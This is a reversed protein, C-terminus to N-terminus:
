LIGLVSRFWPVRKLRLSVLSPVRHGLWGDVVEDDLEYELVHGNDSRREVGQMGLMCCSIVCEGILVFVVLVSM